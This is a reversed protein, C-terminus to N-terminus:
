RRTTAAVDRIASVVLDPESIMIEHGSHAAMVQKGVSSLTVLAVQNRKHEDENARGEPGEDEPLGRSLVILPIDGLPHEKRGQEALLAALEEGEFPNDNSAWQKVQSFAWFRMRQAEAPLRDYPPETAHPAMQRAAAEIQNRIETSLDGERLPDSTKVATPQSASIQGTCNLHLRWGGLDILRGPAPIPSSSSLTQGTTPTSLWIFLVAPILLLM